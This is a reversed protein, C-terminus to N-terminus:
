VTSKDIYTETCVDGVPISDSYLKFRTEQDVVVHLLNDRSSNISWENEAQKTIILGAELMEAITLSLVTEPNVVAENLEYRFKM